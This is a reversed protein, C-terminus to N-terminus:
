QKLLHEKYNIFSFGFEETKPLGNIDLPDFPQWGDAATEPNVIITKIDQDLAWVVSLTPNSWEWTMQRVIQIGVKENKLLTDEFKVVGNRSVLEEKFISRFGDWQATALIQWTTQSVVLLAVVAAIKKWTGEEVVILAKLVFYVVISFLPLMYTVFVRAPYQLNPRILEPMIVPSLSVFFSFLLLFALLLKFILTHVFKRFFISLSILSIYAFSLIAPWHYLIASFSSLFGAKNEPCRPFVISYAAIVVSAILLILTIGWVARTGPSTNGWYRFIRVVVVVILISGLISASEYSRMFIFVLFLLIIKETWKYEDQLVLYFFIPWFVAVLVHSEHVSMFSLNMSIGFLSIVPFLMYYLNKKKTILYCLWLSMLQPLYLGFGFVYSLIEVDRVQFIQILIVVLFQTLYHAHHRPFDDAYIFSKEELIKLFYHSGDAYYIRQTFIAYGISFLYLGIIGVVIAYHKNFVAPKSNNM